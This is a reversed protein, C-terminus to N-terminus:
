NEVGKTFKLCRVLEILSPSLSLHYTIEIIVDFCIELLNLIIGLRVSEKANIWFTSKRVCVCQFVMSRTKVM